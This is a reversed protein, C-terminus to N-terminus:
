SSHKQVSSRAFPFPRPQYVCLPSIAIARALEMRKPRPEQPAMCAAAEATTARPPMSGLLVGRAIFPGPPAIAHMTLALYFTSSRLQRGRSKPGRPVSTVVLVLRRLMCRLNERCIHQCKACLACACAAFDFHLEPHADIYLLLLCWWGPTRPQARWSPAGRQRILRESDQFKFGSMLPLSLSSLRGVGAKRAAVIGDSIQANTREM